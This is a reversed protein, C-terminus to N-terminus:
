ARTLRIAGRGSARHLLLGLPVTLGIALLPLGAVFRLAAVLGYADGIRGVAPVLLGGLGFAFGVIVGSALARREFWLEQALVVTISFSATIMAGGSWLLAIALVGGPPAALFALLLPPMALLSLVLVRVRGFRDALYGGALTAVAGTLLMGALVRSAMGEGAGAVRVYYLPIFSTLSSSVTSRVAVLAVLLGLAWARARWPLRAVAPIEVGAVGASARQVGEGATRSTGGTGFRSTWRPVLLWLCAAFAAGPIFMLATGRTGFQLALEGGVLPGLAVGLNGGVLFWSTATAPRPGGYIGTLKYAQPHFASVGLGGIVVLLLFAWYQPALGTASIGLAATFCAVAIWRANRGRETILGVVPQAVSSTVSSTATVFGALSYTLGYRVQWFPLLAPVTTAYADVVTHAVTLLALLAVNAAIPSVPASPSPPAAGPATQPEGSVTTRAQTM